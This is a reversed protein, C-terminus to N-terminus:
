SGLSGFLRDLDGDTMTGSGSDTRSRSWRERDNEDYDGGVEAELETRSIELTVGLTEAVLALEDYRDLRYLENYEDRIHEEEELSFVGFEELLRTKEEENFVDPFVEILDALAGFEGLEMGDVFTFAILRVFQFVGHERDLGEIRSGLMRRLISALEERSWVENTLEGVLDTCAHELTKTTGGGIAQVMDWLVLFRHLLSSQEVLWRDELDDGAYKALRMAVSASGRLSWFRGPLTQLSALAESEVENGGPSLIRWLRAVQSAFIAVEVLDAVDRSHTRLHGELFDQISPNHFELIIEGHSLDHKIFAGELEKVAREWDYPTRSSGYKRVRFDHFAEFAREADSVRVRDPLTALVLLTHQGEVSLHADFAREWIQRPNDLADLFRQPYAASELARINLSDTLTELIRPSYNKHRVIKRYTKQALLAALHDRPLGSFYLHNYLIEARMQTTYDALDIVCKGLELEASGLAEMFTTAQNFIYERTTLILRSGASNGVDRMFRLLREDENRAVQHRLGTKGLFDDFYFLQRENRQFVARAEDIGEWIRFCEFDRDIHDIILMEALTTKGIGPVGTIIAFHHEALAESARDISPNRVFRRVRRQLSELESLQESFISANLVRTLVPVSTLWLKHHSGEVQPHQTLLNNLDERGFVDWPGVCYPAFLDVVFDKRQPSLGMSTALIYRDPKLARVKPLEAKLRQKLSSWDTHPYHKVQVILNSPGKAHRLDIGEDPGASFSELTLGTDAQLLDRVLLELDWPSLGQFFYEAM